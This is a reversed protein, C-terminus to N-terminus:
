GLGDAGHEGELLTDLSSLLAIAQGEGQRALAAVRDGRDGPVAVAGVRQSLLYAHGALDHAHRILSRRSALEGVHKDLAGLIAVLRELAANTADANLAAAPHASDPTSTAPGVVALLGDIAENLDLIAMRAAVMADGESQDRLKGELFAREDRERGPVDATYGLTSLPYRTEIMDLVEAFEGPTHHTRLDDESPSLDPQQSTRKFNDIVWGWGDVVLWNLVQGTRRGIATRM